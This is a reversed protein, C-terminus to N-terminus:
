ILFAGSRGPGTRLLQQLRSPDCAVMTQPILEGSSLRLLQIEIRHNPNDIIIRYYDPDGHGKVLRPLPTGESLYGLCSDTPVDVLVSGRRGVTIKMDDHLKVVSPYSSPSTIMALRDPFNLIQFGLGGLLYAIFSIAAIVVMASAILPLSVGVLGLAMRVLPMLEGRVIFWIFWMITLVGAIGAAVHWWAYGLIPSPSALWDKVVERTFEEPIWNSGEGMNQLAMVIIAGVIIALLLKGPSLKM